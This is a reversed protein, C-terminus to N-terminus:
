KKWETVNPSFDLQYDPIGISIGYKTAEDYQATVSRDIIHFVKDHYIIFHEKENKFDAYWHHEHDLVRSIKESIEAVRGEAIEVDRMTWQDVWPTKHEPTVQEVTTSVIKIERLISKDTLSEQILVGAFDMHKNLEVGMTCDVIFLHVM